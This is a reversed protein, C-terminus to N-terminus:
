PFSNAAHAYPGGSRWYQPPATLRLKSPKIVESRITNVCHPVIVILRRPLNPVLLITHIPLTYSYVGASLVTVSLRSVLPPSFVTGALTIPFRSRLM